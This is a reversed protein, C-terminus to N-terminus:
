PTLNEKWGNAESDMMYYDFQAKDDVKILSTRVWHGNGRHDLLVDQGYNWSFESEEIQYIPKENEKLLVSFIRRRTAFAKKYLIKILNRNLMM